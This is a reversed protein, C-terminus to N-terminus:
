KGLEKLRTNMQQAETNAKAMYNRYGTMDDIVCSDAAGRFDYLMNAFHKQVEDDPAPRSNDMADAVAKRMALCTRQGQNQSIVSLRPRVDRHWVGLDATAAAVPTEGTRQDTNCAVAGTGLLATLGVAIVTYRHDRM